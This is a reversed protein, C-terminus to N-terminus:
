LDELIRLKKLGKWTDRAQGGSQFGDMWKTVNGNRYQDEQVAERWQLDKGQISFKLKVEPEAEAWISNAFEENEWFTGVTQYKIDASYPTIFYDLSAEM